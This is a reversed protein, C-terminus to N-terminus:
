RKFGMDPVREWFRKHGSDGVIFRFWYTIRLGNFM